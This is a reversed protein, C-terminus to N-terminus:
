YKIRIGKGKLVMAIRKPMSDIIKNIKLVDYDEMILKVRQSFQEFTEDTINHDITNNRLKVSVLHFFNEIPNLDPSRPPISFLLTDNRQFARRAKASNQSPDGDQLFRRRRPNGCKEFTDEFNEDVINSFKEGSIRGRYQECLVVGHNYSIAVMFKAQRNGEKKGKATCHLSLGEKRMRWERAGPVVAQDMPNKKYIFGVGDLYFNIGRRWFAQTLNYRKVKRCFKMRKKLDTKKLLGKKRSRCYRYGIINLYRRFTRNSINGLGAELQLRKSTFSGVTERLRNITRVIKRFDRCSLLRKRGKCLKRRDQPANQCNIEKRCHKYITAKSYQPFRQLLAKGRVGAVQYLVRIEISHELSIAKTSNGGRRRNQQNM